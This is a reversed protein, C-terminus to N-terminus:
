SRPRRQLGDSTPPKHSNHSDKAVRERLTHNETLLMSLQERLQAVVVHQQAVLAELEVIRGEPTM